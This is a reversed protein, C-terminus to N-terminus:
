ADIAEHQGAAVPRRRPRTIFYLGGLILALALFVAPAPREHLLLVGWFLASPPLLYTVIISRSAGVRQILRFSILIALGTGGLGLWLTSALAVMSPFHTPHSFATLPLLVIAALMCQLFASAQAPVDQFHRRAYHYSVAYSFTAIVLMGVGLVSGSFISGSPRALIVVGAFGMLFGAIQRRHLQEAEAFLPALVAAWLPATANLIGALSSDIAREGVAFLTYPLAANTIGLILGHRWMQLVGLIPVGTIRLWLALALAATLTRLFVMTVPPIDGVALKILLFQPGWILALAGLLLYDRRAM